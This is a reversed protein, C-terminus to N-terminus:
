PAGKGSRSGSSGSGGSGSAPTVVIDDAMQRSQPNSFSTIAKREEFGSLVEMETGFDTGPVIKQLHVKNGPEVM